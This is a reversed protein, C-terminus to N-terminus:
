GADDTEGSLAKRVKDWMDLYLVGGVEGMWAAVQVDYGENSASDGLFDHLEALLYRLRANEAELETEHCLPCSYGGGEDEHIADFTFACNDCTVVDGSLTSRTFGEITMRNDGHHNEVYVTEM